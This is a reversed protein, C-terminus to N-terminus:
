VTSSRTCACRHLAYVVGNDGGIVVTGDWSIAPSAQVTCGNTGFQWLLRGESGNIAIVGGTQSGMYVTFGAGIAASSEIAGFAVFRWM